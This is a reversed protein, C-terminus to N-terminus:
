FIFISYILNTLKSVGFSFFICVRINQDSSERSIRWLYIRGRRYLLFIHFGVIVVTMSYGIYNDWYTCKYISHVWFKDFTWGNKVKKDGNM